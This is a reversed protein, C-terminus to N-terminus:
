FFTKEFDYEAKWGWDNQAASDIVDACWSDVIGQRKTDPQFIWLPRLFHKKYM